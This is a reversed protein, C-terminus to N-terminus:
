DGEIVDSALTVSRVVAFKARLCCLSEGVHSTEARAPKKRLSVVRSYLIIPAYVRIEHSQNAM